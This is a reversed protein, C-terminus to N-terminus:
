QVAPQALHIATWDPFNLANYESIIQDIFLVYLEIIVISLCFAVNHIKQRYFAHLMAFKGM